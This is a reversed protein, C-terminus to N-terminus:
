TAARWAEVLEAVTAFRSERDPSAAREAVARAAPSGRFADGEGLFVLATRGLTFVTTREDILAGREHEEPAMFRTSGFMRGMANRFPGRHYTDLDILRLEGSGFDYLICGDYFDSAIWGAGVLEVHADYIADLASAIVGAPLARFRQYPSAPDDRQARPVGLLEGDFWDYVLLPGEPSEILRRVTAVARHGSSATVDVANRLLAVREGHTLVPAPDDLRGATKVFYRAGDVRVGYSVNGSDQSRDFRAFVEGISALYAEPASSIRDRELAAPLM